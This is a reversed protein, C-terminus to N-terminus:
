RSSFHDADTCIQLLKQGHQKAFEREEQLADAETLLNIGPRLSDWHHCLLDALVIPADCPFFGLANPAQERHVAIDSCLLPKGLAKSDQVVTSWGEFVPLLPFCGDPM